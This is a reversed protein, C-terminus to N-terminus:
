CDSAFPPTRVLASSVSKTNASSDDKPDDSDSCGASVAFALSGHIIFNAAQRNM